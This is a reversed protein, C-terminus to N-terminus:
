TPDDGGMKGISRAARPHENFSSPYSRAPSVARAESLCSRFSWSPKRPACGIWAVITLRSAPCRVVGPGRDHFASGCGTRRFRSCLRPTRFAPSAIAVSVAPGSAPRCRNDLRQEPQPRFSSRDAMPLRASALPRTSPWVSTSVDTLTPSGSHIGVRVRVELDHPWTRNGLARQIAVAAVIAAAAGDFVAFFEDARADIERGSARLVAARVIGRVENLVAGYGDGLKRLLATSGEIDTMLLTVFGTPLPLALPAWRSRRDWSNTESLTRGNRSAISRDKALIENWETSSPGHPPSRRQHELEARGEPGAGQEPALDQSM